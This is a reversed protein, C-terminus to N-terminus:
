EEMTELIKDLIVPDTFFYCKLITECLDVISKTPMITIREMSFIDDGINVEKVMTPNELDVNEPEGLM